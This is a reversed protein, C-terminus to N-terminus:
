AVSAYKELSTIYKGWRGGHWSAINKWAASDAGHTLKVWTLWGGLVGDAYSVTEGLVYPGSNKSLWGDLTALGEQAKALDGDRQVGAPSFEEIKKGFKAERTARFYKESSPNLIGNSLALQLLLIPGIATMLGAEFAEVLPKSSSPFLTNGSPYTSDLYEAIIFSDSIVKGTNPDQIIPLTYSPSGDDKAGTPPAGIKLALAEIDPYEVWQTKYPVGKINLAYRTKWTNPSWAGGSLKSPIDYFIIPSSM